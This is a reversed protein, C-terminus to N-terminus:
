KAFRKVMGDVIEKASYYDIRFSNKGLGYVQKLKVSPMNALVKDELFAPVASDDVRLLFTTEANLETLREYESKVFDDPKDLAGHWSLKPAEIDFGLSAILSGHSGNPTAIPNIMGPGNYSVLNAKGKPIILKEKATKVYQDFEAIRKVANDSLGTAEGLQLALKQWSQSGYDLVITPAIEQLMKLHQLASDAGSTSVIILDPQVSYAAELDVSSIPWLKEIKRAKAVHEWQAFFRSNGNASSAIVPADIALLTGTITVSTSLIRQPKKAITVVSGDPNTFKIPWEQKAQVNVSLTLLVIYAILRPLVSNRIM